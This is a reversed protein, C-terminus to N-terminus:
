QPGSVDALGKCKLQGTCSDAHPCAACALLSLWRQPKRMGLLGGPKGARRKWQMAKFAM